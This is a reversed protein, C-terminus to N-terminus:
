ETRWWVLQGGEGTNADEYAAELRTQFTPDIARLAYHIAHGMEHIFTHSFILEGEHGPISRLGVTVVCYRDPICAGAYRHCLRRNTMAGLHVQPILCKPSALIMRFREAPSEGRYVSFWARTEPRKSTMGLAVKKAASFFIDDVEAGGIIALGDADIYKQYYNRQTEIFDIEYILGDRAVGATDHIRRGNIELIGDELVDALNAKAADLDGWLLTAIEPPPPGIVTDTDTKGTLIDIVTSELHEESCGFFVLLAVLVFCMIKNFM